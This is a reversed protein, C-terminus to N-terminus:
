FFFTVEIKPALLDAFISNFVSHRNDNDISVTFNANRLRQSYQGHYNRDDLRLAFHRFLLSGGIEKM